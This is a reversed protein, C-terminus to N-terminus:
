NRMEPTEYKKELSQEVIIQEIVEENSLGADLQLEAMQEIKDFVEKAKGAFVFRM